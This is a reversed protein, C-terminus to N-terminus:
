FLVRWSWDTSSDRPEEGKQPEGRPGEAARSFSWLSCRPPLCLLPPRSPWQEQLYYEGLNCMRASTCLSPDSSTGYKKFFLAQTTIYMPTFLVLSWQIANAMLQLYCELPLELHMHSICVYRLPPGGLPFTEQLQLTTRLHWWWHRQVPWDAIQDPVVPDSNCLQLITANNWKCYM